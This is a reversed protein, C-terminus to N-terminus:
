LIKVGKKKMTNFLAYSEKIEIKNKTHLRNMVGYVTNHSMGLKDAIEKYTVLYYGNVTPFTPIVKLVKGENILGKKSNVDGYSM